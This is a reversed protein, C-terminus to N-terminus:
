TSCILVYSVNIKKNHRNLTYLHTEPVNLLHYTIFIQTKM